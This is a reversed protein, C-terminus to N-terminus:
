RKGKLARIHDVWEEETECDLGCLCRGFWGVLDSGIVRHKAANELADQRAKTIVEEDHVRGTEDIEACVPCRPVYGRESVLYLQYSNYAVEDLCARPHGRKCISEPLPERLKAEVEQVASILESEIAGSVVSHPNMLVLERSFVKM